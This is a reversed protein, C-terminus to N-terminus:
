WDLIWYLTSRFIFHIRTRFYYIEVFAECASVHAFRLCATKTESLMQMKWSIEAILLFFMYNRLQCNSNQGIRLKGNLRLWFGWVSDSYTSARYALWVCYIKPVQSWHMCLRFPNSISNQKRVSKFLNTLITKSFWIVSTASYIFNIWFYFILTLIYKCHVVITTGISTVEM